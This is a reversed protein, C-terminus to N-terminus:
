NREPSFFRVSENTYPCWLEISGDELREVFFFDTTFKLVREGQEVSVRNILGGFTKTIGLCRVEIIVDHRFAIESVPAEWSYAEIENTLILRGGVYDKLIEISLQM